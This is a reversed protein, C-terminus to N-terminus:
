TMLLVMLRVPAPIFKGGAFHNKLSITQMFACLVHLCTTSSDCSRCRICAQRVSQSDGAASATTEGVILYRWVVASLLGRTVYSFHAIFILLRLM